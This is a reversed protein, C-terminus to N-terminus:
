VVYVGVDYYEVVEAFVYVRWGGGRGCVEFGFICGLVRCLVRIWLVVYM